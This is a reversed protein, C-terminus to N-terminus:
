VDRPLGRLRVTKDMDEQKLIRKLDITKCGLQDIM